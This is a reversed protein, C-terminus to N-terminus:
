IFFSHRYEKWLFHLWTGVRLNIELATALSCVDNKFAEELETLDPSGETPPLRATEFDILAYKREPGRLGALLPSSISPVIVDMFM